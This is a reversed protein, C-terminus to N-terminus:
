GRLLVARLEVLAIERMAPEGRRDRLAARLEAPAIERM